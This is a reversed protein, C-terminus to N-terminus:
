NRQQQSSNSCLLMVKFLLPIFLVCIQYCSFTIKNQPSYFQDLSKCLNLFVDRFFFLLFFLLLQKQLLLWFRDEPRDSQCRFPRKDETWFFSRQHRRRRGLFSPLITTFSPLSPALSLSLSLSDTLGDM